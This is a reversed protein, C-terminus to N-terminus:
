DAVTNRDGILDRAIQLLDDEWLPKFHIHAGLAELERAIDEDLLYDGTMIAVPIDAHRPSARLRRLVELGDTIPLRLDLLLAAPRAREIEALGSEANPAALVRYGGATLLQKFTDVAAPDDEIILITASRVDQQETM